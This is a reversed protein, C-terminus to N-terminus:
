RITRGIMQTTRCIIYRFGYKSFYSILFVSIKVFAPYIKMQINYFNLHVVRDDVWVM